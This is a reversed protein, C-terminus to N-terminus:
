QYEDASMTPSGSTIVAGCSTSSGIVAVPKKEMPFSNVGSTIIQAGHLACMYTDGVRAVRRGDLKTTPSGTTITGGHSGTDGIRAVPPM